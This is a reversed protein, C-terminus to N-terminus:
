RTLFFARDVQILGFGTTFDYGRKGMDSATFSLADFIDEPDLTPDDQLLLAAAAAAHPAAASTGFFNPFNDGDVLSGDGFTTQGFFSTNAGDPATFRPQLRKEVTREGDTDFLIPIGGVSTFPEPLAPSVGYAPTNSFRAAGVGVGGESNAHGKATPSNTIYEQAAADGYEQMRVRTPNPGDFRTVLLNVVRPRSSDNFISVAEVPDNGLNDDTSVSFIGNAPDPPIVNGRDDLVFLDLDTKAGKKNRTASAFPDDWELFTTLVGGAPISVKRLTDTGRPAYNLMDAKYDIQGGSGRLIFSGGNKWKTEFAEAGANGASTFYAVGREAVQDVAQAIVGDSYAPEAFYSVDDVIVKSGAQALRLINNAFGAQGGIFATAFAIDAGPAVDHVIQAMARGEDSGGDNQDLDQLVQVGRAPLDGNRIDQAVTTRPPGGETVTDWANFSDSLIGVKIGRGDVRYTSRAINSRQAFDGQSLVGTAGTLPFANTKAASMRVFQLESLQGAQALAGVPLRGSVMQQFASGNKLGLRQLKALLAAPDASAVADVTVYNGDIPLGRGNKGNGLSQASLPTAALQRLASSLKSKGFATQVSGLALVSLDQQGTVASPVDNLSDLQSETPQPGPQSTTGCGVLLSLTLALGLYNRM